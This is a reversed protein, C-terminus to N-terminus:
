KVNFQKRLAEHAKEKARLQHLEERMAAVNSEVTRSLDQQAKLKNLANERKQLANFRTRVEEELHWLEVERATLKQSLATTKEELQAIKIFERNMKLFKAELKRQVRMSANLAAEVPALKKQLVQLQMAQAKRQNAGACILFKMIEAGALLRPFSKRKLTEFKVMEWQLGANERQLTPITEVEKRLVIMEENANELELLVSQHFRDNKEAELLLVDKEHIKEKLESILNNKFAIQEDKRSSQMANRGSESGMERIRREHKSVELCLESIRENLRQIETLRLRAVAEASLLEQNRKELLSNSNKVDIMQQELFQLKTLLGDQAKTEQVMMDSLTCRLRELQESLFKKEKREADLDLQLQDSQESKTKLLKQAFNFERAFDLLEQHLSSVGDNLVNSVEMVAQLDNRRKSALQEKEEACTQLMRVSVRSDELASQLKLIKNQSSELENELNRNRTSIEHLKKNATAKTQEKLELIGVIEDKETEARVVAQKLSHNENFLCEAIEQARDCELCTREDNSSNGLSFFSRMDGDAEISHMKKSLVAIRLSLFFNQARIRAYHRSKIQAEYIRLKLGVHLRASANELFLCREKLSSNERRLTEMTRKMLQPPEEPRPSIERLSYCLYKLARNRRELVEMELKQTEKETKFKEAHAKEQVLELASERVDDEATELKNQMEDITEAQLCITSEANKLLQQFVEADDRCRNTEREKEFLRKTLGNREITLSDHEAQMRRFSRRLEDIERSSSNELQSHAVRRSELAQRLQRNTAHLKAVQSKFDDVERAHAFTAEKGRSAKLLKGPNRVQVNSNNEAERENEEADERIEGV